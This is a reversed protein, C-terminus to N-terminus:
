ASQATAARPVPRGRWCPCATHPARRHAPGHRCRLMPLAADLRLLQRLVQANGAEAAADIGQLLTSHIHPLRQHHADGHEAGPADSAQVQQVGAGLWQLSMGCLRHWGNAVAPALCECMLGLEHRGGDSSSTSAAVLLAHAHDTPPDPADALVSVDSLLARLADVTAAPAGNGQLLGRAVETWKKRVSGGGGGGGGGDEGPHPPEVALHQRARHQPEAAAAGICEHEPEATCEDEPEVAGVGTQRSLAALLAQWCDALDAGADRHCTEALDLQSACLRLGHAAADLLTESPEPSPSKGKGSGDPMTQPQEPPDLWQDHEALILLGLEVYMHQSFRAGPQQLLRSLLAWQQERVAVCASEQLMQKLSEGTTAGPRAGDVDEQRPTHRDEVPPQDPERALVRLLCDLGELWGAVVARQLVERWVDGNLGGNGAKSWTSIHCLLLSLMRVGGSALASTTAATPLALLAQAPDAGDRLLRQIAENAADGACVCMCPTDRM